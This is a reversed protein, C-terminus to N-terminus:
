PKKSPASSKNDARNRPWYVWTAPGTDQQSHLFPLCHCVRSGLPRSPYASPHRDKGRPKTQKTSLLLRGARCRGPLQHWQQADQPTDQHELRETSVSSTGATGPCSTGHDKKARLIQLLHSDSGWPVLLVAPSPCAALIHMPASLPLHFPYTEAKLAQPVSM